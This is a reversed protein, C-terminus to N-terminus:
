FYEFSFKVLNSDHIAGAELLQCHLIFLKRILISCYYVQTVQLVLYLIPHHKTKAYNKNIRITWKKVSFIRNVSVWWIVFSPALIM